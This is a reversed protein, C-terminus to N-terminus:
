LSRASAQGLPMPVSKALHEKQLMVPQRKAEWERWACLDTLAPRAMDRRLGEIPALPVGIRASLAELAARLAEPECAAKFGWIGGTSSYCVEPAGPLLAGSRALEEGLTSCLFRMSLNPWSSDQKHIAFLPVLASLRKRAREGWLMGAMPLTTEWDWARSQDQSAGKGMAFFIAMANGRVLASPKYRHRMAGAKYEWGEFDTDPWDQGKGSVGDSGVLSVLESLFVRALLPPEISSVERRLIAREGEFHITDFECVGSVGAVKCCFFWLADDPRLAGLPSQSLALAARLAPGEMSVVCLPRRPKPAQEKHLWFEMRACTIAGM